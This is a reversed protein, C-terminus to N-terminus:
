VRRCGGSLPHRCLHGIEGAFLSAHVFLSDVTQELAKDNSFGGFIGLSPNFRRNKIRKRENKRIFNNVATVTKRVIIRQRMAAPQM